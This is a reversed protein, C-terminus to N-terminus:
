LFKSQEEDLFIGGVPEIDYYEDCVPPEDVIGKRWSTDDELSTHYENVAETDIGSTKLPHHLCYELFHKHENSERLEDCLDISKKLWKNQRRTNKKSSSHSMVSKLLAEDTEQKAEQLYMIRESTSIYDIFDNIINRM